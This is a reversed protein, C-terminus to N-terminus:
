TFSIGSPPGSGMACFFDGGGEVLEDLPRRGVAVMSKFAVSTSFSVPAFGAIDPWASEMSFFVEGSPRWAVFGFGICFATVLLAGAAWRGFFWGSRWESFCWLAFTYAHEGPM